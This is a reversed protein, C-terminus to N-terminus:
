LVYSSQSQSIENCQKKHKLHEYFITQYLHEDGRIVMVADEIIDEIVTNLIYSTSEYLMDESNINTEYVPANRMVHIRTYYQTM